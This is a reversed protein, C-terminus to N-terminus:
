QISRKRRKEIHSTTSTEIGNPPTDGTYEIAQSDTVLVDDMYEVVKFTLPENENVQKNEVKEQVNQTTDTTENNTNNLEFDSKTLLNLSAEITKNLKYNEVIIPTAIATGVVVTTVITTAVAHAKVFLLITKFM